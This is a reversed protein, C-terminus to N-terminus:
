GVGREVLSYKSVYIIVVAIKKIDFSSRKIKKTAISFEMQNMMSTM